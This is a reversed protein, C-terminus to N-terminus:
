GLLQTIAKALDLDKTTIGGADHTVLAIDVRNYVNVWEPHHSQQEALLAVRSMFGWAMSFNEFKLSLVLKGEELRWADNSGIWDAIEEEALLNM